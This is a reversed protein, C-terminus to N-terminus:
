RRRKSNGPRIHIKRPPIWVVKGDRWVAIPNGARKHQLIAERVATRMARSVLETDAFLEGIDKQKDNKMDSVARL